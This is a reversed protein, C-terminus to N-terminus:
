SAVLRSRLEDLPDGSSGASQQGPRQIPARTQTPPPLTPQVPPKQVTPTGARHMQRLLNIRSVEPMNNFVDAVQAPGLEPYKKALMGRAREILVLTHATLEEKPIHDKLLLERVFEGRAIRGEDVGEPADKPINAMPTEAPAKRAPEVPKTAALKARAAVLLRVDEEPLGYVTILDADAKALQGQFPALAPEAPPEEPAFGFDKALDAVNSYLTRAVALDAAAPRRGQQVALQIRNVAAQSKVLGALHDGPVYSLDEPGVEHKEFIERMAKADEALPKLEEVLVESTRARRHLTEIRTKTEQKITRLTEPTMGNFPDDGQKQQDPAGKAEPQKGAAAKTADKPAPTASPNPKEPTPAKAVLRDALAQVPDPPKAKAEEAFRGRDDRPIDAPPAKTTGEAPPAPSTPNATDIQPAGTDAPATQVNQDISPEVQTAPSVVVSDQGQSGDAM